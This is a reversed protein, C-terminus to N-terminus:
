RLYGHRYLLRIARERDGEALRYIEEPMLRPPRKKRRSGTGTHTVQVTKGFMEVKGMAKRANVVSYINAGDGIAKAGAEGFVKRRQDPSMSEFIDQADPPTPNNKRTVPEMTCDCRPHRLFGSSVGYERGALVICRACAPLEVVRVYARVASNAVMSAQDAQRGTDAIVTRVAMDLFAAGRALAAYPSFNARRARITAPIPQALLGMLNRGDPTQSAFQEPVIEPGTSRPGLLERMFTHTGEAAHLQGAQVMATVRPLLRAWDRAVDDPRVKSWEALVARATAEALTERAKQHRRALLSLAM